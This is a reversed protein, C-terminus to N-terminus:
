FDCTERHTKLWHEKEQYDPMYREVIAWFRDSHNMEVLHALEHLIVYDQVDPPAFLLRTSLNVNRNRSCSGWNSHNYKLNVSRIPQKVTRDNWDLVRQTIERQFDAAVIRSLLTKIAKSRNAPTSKNSMQLFIIGNRLKASHSERAEDQVDLVYERDGVRLLQGTQYEKPVLADRMKPRELLTKHVWQELEVLKQRMGDASMNAPLRMIIRRQSMSFRHGNRAEVIIDVPLQLGAAEIHHRYKRSKPKGFLM